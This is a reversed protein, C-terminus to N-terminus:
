NCLTEKMLEILEAEESSVVDFGDVHEALQRLLEAKCNDPIHAPFEEDHPFSRRRVVDVGNDKIKSERVFVVGQDANPKKQRM